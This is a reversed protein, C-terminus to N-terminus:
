DGILPDEANAHDTNIITKGTVRQQKGEKKCSSYQGVLELLGPGFKNPNAQRLKMGEYARWGEAIAAFIMSLIFFVSLLSPLVDM